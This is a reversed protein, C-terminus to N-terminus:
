QRPSARLEVIYPNKDSEQKFFSQYIVMGKLLHCSSSLVERDDEPTPEIDMRDCYLEIDILDAVAIDVARMDYIGSYDPIDIWVECLADNEFVFLVIVDLGSFYTAYSLAAANTWERSGLPECGAINMVEDKTMNWKIKRFDKEFLYHANPRQPYTIRSKDLSSDNDLNVWITHYQKEVKKFPNLQKERLTSYTEYETLYMFGTGIRDYDEEYQSSSHLKLNHNRFFEAAVPDIKEIKQYMNQLAADRDYAMGVTVSLSLALALVMSFLKKM